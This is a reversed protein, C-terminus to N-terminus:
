RYYMPSPAAAYSAQQMKVKKRHNAILLVIIILIILLVVVAVIIFAIDLGSFSSVSSPLTSGTVTVPTGSGCDVSTPQTPDSPNYIFCNGCNENFNIGGISSTESFINIDSFYCNCSTGAPCNSCATSFNVGQLNSDILDITINDIVCNTEQCTVPSGNQTKPISGSVICLPDCQNYEDELIGTYDSYQSQPLHCACAKVLNCSALDNNTQCDSLAKQVQARTYKQCSTTLTTDCASPFRLCQGLIDSVYNAGDADTTDVSYAQLIAAAGASVMQPAADLNSAIYSSCVGAPIVSTHTTGQQGILPTTCRGCVEGFQEGSPCVNQCGCAFNQFHQGTPCTGAGGWQDFMDSTACWASIANNCSPTGAKSIYQPDCTYPGVAIGCVNDPTRSSTNNGTTNTSTCNNAALLCCSAPDGQYSTRTCGVPGGVVGCLGGQVSCSLTQVSGGTNYKCSGHNFVNPNTSWEGNCPCQVHNLNTPTAFNSCIANNILNGGVAITPDNFMNFNSTSCNGSNNFQNWLACNSGNPCDQAVQTESPCVNNCTFPNSFREM